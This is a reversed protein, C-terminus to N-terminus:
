AAKTFRIPLEKLPRTLINAAHTPWPLPRALGFSALRDLIVGVSVAMEMRALVRGVCLHAGAGYAMHQALDKREIDFQHPCEFRRDDQNAAGFRIMMISGKPILTGAVEVDRTVRRSLGQVPGEFRVVEEVFNAILGRDARIKATQEPYRIMLWMAHSIAGEVTEFGGGILNRMIGMIEPMSLPEEDDLSERVFTTVIDDRPTKRRDEFVAKLFDQMEITVRACERLEDEDMLKIVPLLLKNSWAKFKDIDTPDFGLQGAIIKGSLPFAFEKIFECEGRDIFGDILAHAVERVQPEILQIRKPSFVKNLVRRHRSHAPPDLTNLNPAITADADELIKEFIPWKDGQMFGDSFANSFTEADMCIAKIDDYRTVVYFGTEPMLYVPRDDRLLRYFERPDSQVAPDFLSADDVSHLPTATTSTRVEPKNM